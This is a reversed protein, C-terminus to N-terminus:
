IKIAQPRFQTPEVEEGCSVLCLGIFPVNGADARVHYSNQGTKGVGEELGM